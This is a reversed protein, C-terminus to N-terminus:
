ADSMDHVADIDMKAGISALLQILTKEFFFGVPEDRESYECVIVATIDAGDSDFRTARISEAFSQVLGFIAADMHEADPKIEHSKWYFLPANALPHGTRRRQLVAGPVKKRVLEDLEKLEAESGEVRIYSRYKM